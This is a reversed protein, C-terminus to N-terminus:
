PIPTNPPRASPWRIVWVWRCAGSHAAQQHWLGTVAVACGSESKAWVGMHVETVTNCNSSESESKGNRMKANEGGHAWIVVVLVNALWKDVDVEDGGLGVNRRVGERRKGKRGGLFIRVEIGGTPKSVQFSDGLRSSRLRGGAGFVKM